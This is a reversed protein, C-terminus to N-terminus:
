QVTISGNVIIGNNNCTLVDCDLPTVNGGGNCCENEKKMFYFIQLNKLIIDSCTNGYILYYFFPTELKNIKKIIIGSENTINSTIENNGINKNNYGIINLNGGKTVYYSLQIYYEQSTDLFFPVTPRFSYLKNYNIISSWLGNNMLITPNQLNTLLLKDKSEFCNSYIIKKEFEIKKKEFEIENENVNHGNLQDVTNDEIVDEKEMNDITTEEEPTIDGIIYVNIDNIVCVKDSFCITYTNEIKSGNPESSINDIYYQKDLLDFSLISGNKSVFINGSTSYKTDICINLIINLNSTNKIFTPIKIEFFGFSKNEVKLLILKNYKYTHLCNYISYLFFNMINNLTFSKIINLKITEKSTEEKEDTQYPCVNSPKSNKKCIKHCSYRNYIIRYM